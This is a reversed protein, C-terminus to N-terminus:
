DPQTSPMAVGLRQQLRPSTTTYQLLVPEDPRLRAAAAFAALTAEHFGSLILKKKGPYSVVDGVAHIGPISTEFGATDVVLQRRAMALGWDAIAGLKPSIGLQVVLADVPRAHTQGDGDVWQVGSLQAPRGSVTDLAVLQGTLFRARGADLHAQWRALLQAEATLTARRHLLTVGAPQQGAPLMQMADALDVAAQVAGDDGGVVLVQRDAVMPLPPPRHFLHKADLLDAGPVQLLRPQFAGVGAAIFVTRAVFAQGSNTAVDFSGDGRLQLRSVVQGLHWGTAFPAIQRQLLAVLERGTCVPVAPIDYIPKDPYLEICQGGIMPLADVVEARIGQLGLQFVQFLGVPGAGIVLADCHIASGATAPGAAADAGPM